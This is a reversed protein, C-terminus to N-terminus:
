WLDRKMRLDGNEAVEQHTYMNQFHSKGRWDKKTKTKNSKQATELKKKLFSQLQSLM